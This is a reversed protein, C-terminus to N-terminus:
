EQGRVATYITVGGLALKYRGQPIFGVQALIRCFREGYPFALITRVLYNYASLKGTCLVGILPVLCKLYVGYGLRVIVGEPMSFELVIIKGGPKLVRSAGMLGQMLDDFNRAGFGITVVDFSREPFDLAFVDAKMLRIKGSFGQAIVKERGCRLMEDSLDVGVVEAVRPDGAMAIAVDATGTALDLVRLGNGRPLFSVMKRRWLQDLGLSLIWNAKDYGSAIANFLDTPM